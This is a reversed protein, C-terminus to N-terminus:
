ITYLKTLEKAVVDMDHYKEVYKRGKIGCEERLNKDVILNELVSAITDPNASQIPLEAPYKDQMFESIWTIVPKAMAMAEVALLGYSGILIQDIIIDAKRYYTKAEEHPMNQILQFEFDYKSKLKEVAQLIYPSGKIEPSTPAHVILLKQNSQKPEVPMYKQLDIATRVISVQKFYNKAYEYLEADGVICHDIYQSVDNLRRKIVEENESKVKVYKNLKRAESLCRIDSGWYHMFMKKGSQKLLALDSHDSMLSLGFHFHFIDFTEAATLAIEKVTHGLKEKNRLNTTALDLVYDSSYGLYSPYYNLSKASVGMRNLGFVLTNMQNAIEITGHLVKLPPKIEINQTIPSIKFSKLKIMSEIIDNKTFDLQENRIKESLLKSFYPYLEGAEKYYDLFSRVNGMAEAEQALYLAIFFQEEKNMLTKYVLRISSMQYLGKILNIGRLIYLDFITSIFNLNMDDQGKSAELESLLFVNAIASYIRNSHYDNPRIKENKLYQIFYDRAQSSKDLLAKVYLKTYGNDMPKLYSIIPMGCEIAYQYIEYYPAVPLNNMVNDALFDKIMSGRDDALRIQNLQGYPGEENSFAKAILLKEENDTLSATELELQNLFYSSRSENKISKYLQNLAEYRQLKLMLKIALEIKHTNEEILGIYEIAEAYNEIEFLARALKYAAISKTKDDLTYLEIISLKSLGTQTCEEHLQLFTKFTEIAEDLEQQALLTEGLYYYLDVYQPTLAIGEKAIKVTEDYSNCIYSMRAYEGYVYHNRAMTDKNYKQLLSYSKRIELLATRYDKHMFYTRALQFRFYIHDPDKELEQLLLSSTRKFKKEMLEQDDNNYGYHRIYIDAHMVPNEYVPQNHISGEYRFQGTNRFLRETIHVVYKDRGDTLFNKGSVRITNYDKVSKSQLLAVLKVPNELEEDADLIMIWEGAAYAISKNRMDSFHYNWEHYYVQSTFERAIEVTKDTSGTDVIILEASLAELLTVISELCRRLNKEENKVIMCISLTPKSSM